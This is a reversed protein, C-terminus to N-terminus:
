WAMDVEKKVHNNEDNKLKIIYCLSNKDEIEGLAEIVKRKV